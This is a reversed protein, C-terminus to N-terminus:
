TASRRGATLDVMLRAMHEDLRYNFKRKEEQDRERIVIGDPRGTCQAFVRNIRGIVVSRRSKQLSPDKQSVGIAKNIDETELNKGAVTSEALITLLEWEISSLHKRLEEVEHRSIRDTTPVPTGSELLPEKGIGHDGTSEERDEAVKEAPMQTPLGMPRMTMRKRGIWLVLGAVAAGATAVAWRISSRYATSSRYVASQRFPEFDDMSLRLRHHTATGGTSLVHLTDNLHIRASAEGDILISSLSDSWRRRPRAIRNGALDVLLFTGEERFLDGMPTRVVLAEQTIPRNRLPFDPNAAGLTEWRRSKFDYRYASDRYICKWDTHRVSRSGLIYLADRDPDYTHPVWRNELGKSRLFLEWEGESAKFFTIFDRYTWRGAGGYEHVTDKRIFAMTEFNDGTFYTKDVRRLGGPRGWELIYVRHTGELVFLNLREKKLLVLRGTDPNQIGLNFGRPLLCATNSSTDSQILKLFRSEADGLAESKVPQGHAEGLSLLISLLIRCTNSM